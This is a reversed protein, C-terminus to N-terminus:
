QRYNAQFGSALAALAEDPAHPAGLRVSASLRQSLLCCGGAGPLCNRGALNEHRTPLYFPVLPGPVREASEEAFAPDCPVTADLIGWRARRGSPVRRPGSAVALLGMSGSNAATHALAVDYWFM